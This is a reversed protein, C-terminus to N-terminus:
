AGTRARRPARQRVQRPRELQAFLSEQPMLLGDMERLRSLAWLAAAWAGIGVSPAGQEMERLTPISVGLRRAFVLQSDGKTLRATRLREGLASLSNATDSNSFM